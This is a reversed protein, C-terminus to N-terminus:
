PVQLQRDKICKIYKIFQICFKQIGRYLDLNIM